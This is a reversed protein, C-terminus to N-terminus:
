DTPCAPEVIGLGEIERLLQAKKEAALPALPPRPPGCDAGHLSMIAKGSALVGFKLLIEVLRVADLSCRRATELDGRAFAEIMRLYIPAAYNYTSGVAGAAGVALAGLLAEDVGWLIDFQGEHSARCRQYEFLDAHTFKIGALNPIVRAGLELFEVMSVNVGSLSPIHYYYFALQPAAAAIPRCFDVLDAANGPKLFSPGMTSIGYIGHAAAHAALATADRVSHHGVHAIVKLAAPARHAWLELIQQREASTLSLGEGTTGNVFVGALGQRSLAEIQRPLMDFDIAGDTAFPTHPAAILGTIPQFDPM